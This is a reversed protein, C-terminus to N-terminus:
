CLLRLPDTDWQALSPSLIRVVVGHGAATAHTVTRCSSFRTSEGVEGSKWALLFPAFWILASSIVVLLPASAQVDQFNVGELLYLPQAGEKIAERQRKAARHLLLSM